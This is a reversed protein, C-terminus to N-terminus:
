SVSGSIKKVAVNARPPLTALRQWWFRLQLCVRVVAGPLMGRPVAGHESEAYASIIRQAPGHGRHALWVAFRYGDRVPSAGPPRGHQRAYEDFLSKEAAIGPWCYLAERRRKLHLGRSVILTRKAPFGEPLPGDAVLAALLGYQRQLLKERASM